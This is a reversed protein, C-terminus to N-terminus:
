EIVRIDWGTSAFNKTKENSLVSYIYSKGGQGSQIKCGIVLGIIVRKDIYEQKTGDGIKFTVFPNRIEVLSGVVIQEQNCISNVDRKFAPLITSLMDSM